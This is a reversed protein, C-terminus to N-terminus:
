KVVLIKSVCKSDSEADVVLAFYVGTAVRIGDTNRGDWIATGGNSIMRNVLNGGADTIRVESDRMLGTISIPGSYNERVPNPYVTSCNNALQGNTADSVFSVIGEDTAMFVEGNSPDIVIDNVVNSILPSNSTTFRQIQETGDESMLFVGSGFTGIWKRNAGDIAISSVAQGELLYQFVGDEEVLIQRADSPRESFIDFPSYFVSVGNSTGVWLEGDLDTSISFVENAALGGSGISASLKSFEMEGENELNPNMVALGSRNVIMWLYGSGDIIVDLVAKNSGLVGNMDFHEWGGEDYRVSLPHSSNANTVWLNNDDDKVFGAVALWPEGDNRNYNPDEMLSSNDDRYWETIENNVVEYCGSFYSGVYAKNADDPDIYVKCVDSFADEFIQPHSERTFNFWSGKNLNYFGETKFANNWTGPRQPSGSAVWLVGKKFDIDFASNTAPGDPHIFEYTNEDYRKVLGSRNDSILINGSEDVIIGRAFPQVAGYSGFSTESGDSSWVKSSWGSTATLYGFESRLSKIGNLELVNNWLGGGERKYLGFPTADPLSIYLDGEFSACHVVEGFPDPISLDQHWNSFITLDQDLSGAYLGENTAAFLTDNIITTEYTSTAGEPNVNYTDKIEFRVLDFNLIGVGTSIYATNGEFTVHRIAKDGVVASNKIEAYNTINNGQILDINGNQYGIIVLGKEQNIRVLSIGVDSLGSVGDLLDFSNDDQHYIFVANEAALYVDNGLRDIDITRSYNLYGKWTNIANQGIANVGTFLGIGLFLCIKRLMMDFRNM